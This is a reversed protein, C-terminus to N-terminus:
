QNSENDSHRHFKWYQQPISDDEAFLGIVGDASTSSRPNEHRMVARFTPLSHETRVLSKTEDVCYRSVAEEFSCPVTKVSRSRMSLAGQAVSLLLMLCLPVLFFINVSAVPATGQTVAGYSYEGINEMFGLLRAIIDDSIHGNLSNRVTSSLLSISKRTERLESVYLIAGIHLLKGHAIGKRIIMTGGMPSLVVTDGLSIKGSSNHSSTYEYVIKGYVDRFRRNSAFITETDGELVYCSMPIYMWSKGAGKGAKQYRAYCRAKRKESRIKRTKDGPEIVIEQEIVGDLIVREAPRRSTFIDKTEAETLRRFGTINLLLFIDGYNESPGVAGIAKKM